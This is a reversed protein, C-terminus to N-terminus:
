VLGSLDRWYIGDLSRASTDVCHFEVGVEALDKTALEVWERFEEDADHLTFYQLALIKLYLWRADKANVVARVFEKIFGRNNRMYRPFLILHELSSPLALATSIEGPLGLIPLTDLSVCLYRLRKFISLSEVSLVLDTQLKELSNVIYKSLVSCIERGEVNSPVWRNKEFESSPHYVFCKLSRAVQFLGELTETGHIQGHFEFKILNFSRPALFRSLTHMVQTSIGDAQISKINPLAVLWELFEFIEQSTITWRISASELKQLIKCGSMKHSQLRKILKYM